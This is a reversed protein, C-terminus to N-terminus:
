ARLEGAEILHVVRGNGDRWEHPLPDAARLEDRTTFLLPSREPCYGICGGSQSLFRGLLKACLKSTQRLNKGSTAKCSRQCLEKKAMPQSSSQSSRSSTVSRGRSGSRMNWKRRSTTKM